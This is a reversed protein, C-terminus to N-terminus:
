DYNLEMIRASGYNRDSNMNERKRNQKEKKSLFVRRAPVIGVRERAIARTETNRNWTKSM